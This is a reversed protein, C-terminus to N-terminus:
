WEGYPTGDLGNGAAGSHVDFVAGQAPDPPAVPVWTTSSGTVPDVPLRRVYKKDVLEDLNDPYKGNDEYFQDLLHRTLALNARLMTEKSQEVSHMYRPVAISLLLAIIAMVVLLEVLTFARYIRLRFM